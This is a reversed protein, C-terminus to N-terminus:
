VEVLFMSLLVRHLADVIVATDKPKWITIIREMNGDLFRLCQLVLRLHMRLPAESVEGSGASKAPWYIGM